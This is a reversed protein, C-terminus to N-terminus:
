FIKKKASEIKSFYKYPIDTFICFKLLSNFKIKLIDKKIKLYKGDRYLIKIIKILKPKFLGIDSHKSIIFFLDLYQNSFHLESKHLNKSHIRYFCTFQSSYYFKYNLSLRLWLDYDEYTLKEDYGGIEKVKDTEILVSMAPIFNGILLENIINNTPVDKMKPKYRSIFDGKLKNSNEDILYANSFVIVYDEDLRLFDNVQNEIKQHLLIDDCAVAQYYIGKLTNLAENLTACLGKNEQHAIFKCEYNNKSIWEKIVEVSNDTSSDDMIILEINSYTQNKISDLTEVLYKAQNYCVAVVSVLPLDEM